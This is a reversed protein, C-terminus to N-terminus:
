RCMHILQLQRRCCGHGSGLSLFLYVTPLPSYAYHLPGWVSIHTLPCLPTTPLSSASTEDGLYKLDSAASIVENINIFALVPQGLQQHLSNFTLTLQFINASSSSQFLEELTTWAQKASMNDTLSAQTEPKCRFYIEPFAWKDANEWSADADDPYAPRSTLSVPPRPNPPLIEHGSITSVGAPM